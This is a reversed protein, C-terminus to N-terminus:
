RRAADVSRAYRPSSRRARAESIRRAQLSARRSAAKEGAGKLVDGAADTNVALALHLAADHRQQFSAGPVLGRLAAAIGLDPCLESSCCTELIKRVVESVQPLMAGISAVALAPSPVCSTLPLLRPLTRHPPEGCAAGIPLAGVAMIIAHYVTFIVSQGPAELEETVGTQHLLGIWLTMFISLLSATQM